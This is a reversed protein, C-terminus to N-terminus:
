WCIPSAFGMTWELSGIEVVLLVIGAAVTATGYLYAHERRLASLELAWTSVTTLCGCFGDMVGQLAWCGWISGGGRGLAAAISGPIKAHQLDYAMGLLATGSLNVAFTGLPFAPLLPNLVLSAYFRALCGVPSLVLGFLVPGRYMQPAWLTADVAAPPDRPHPLLALLLITALWALPAAVVAAPDLLRRLHSSSLSPLLPATLLALHAGFFLGAMSLGVELIGIGLVQMLNFGGNPPAPMDATFGAYLSLRGYPSLPTPSKDGIALYVDRIFTSFSTLSGCFGTALGVFLPISKKHARLAAVAAQGDDGDDGDTAPRVFDDTRFLSRDESLFGMVLSGGFNAWLVSTPAPTGPYYTLAEIVMRLLMGVMSFLVLYSLTVARTWWEDLRGKAPAPAPKEGQEADGGDVVLTGARSPPGPGPAEEEPLDPQIDELSSWRRRGSVPPPAELEDIGSDGSGSTAVSNRMAGTNRASPTPGFGFLSRSHSRSLSRSMDLTLPRSQALNDLRVGGGGEVADGDGDTEDEVNEPMTPAPASLETLGIREEAHPEGASAASLRRSLSIVSSRSGRSRVSSRRSPFSTHSTRKIAINNNNNHNNDSTWSSRSASRVPPLSM